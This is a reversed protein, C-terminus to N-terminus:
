RRQAQRNGRAIADPEKIYFPELTDLNAIDGAKLRAEGLRGVVSAPPAPLHIEALVIKGRGAELVVGRVAELAPGFVLTERRTFRVISEAKVLHYRGLRHRTGGRREYVALYIDGRGANIVPALLRADTSVSAALADLTNVAVVPIGLTLAMGKALSLGVRLATFMGPGISVAIGKVRRRDPDHRDLLRAAMPFIAESHKIKGSTRLEVLTLGGQVLALSAAAASTEIAFIM